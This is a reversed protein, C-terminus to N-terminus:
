IFEEMGRWLKHDDSVAKFYLDAYKAANSANLADVMIDAYAPMIGEAILVNARSERDYADVAIIKM